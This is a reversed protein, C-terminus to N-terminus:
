KFEAQVWRYGVSDRKEIRGISPYPMHFGIVPIKQTTAMDFIRKRSKAAEEKDSDFSFHWDPRALSAVHHHACDSMIVLEEKESQVLFGLHGPTHGYAELTFIGQTVSDGPSLFTLKDAFPVVNKRFLDAFNKAMGRHKGKASWYDFEIESIAYKANPFTPKGGDMLGGIHDSHGHSIVVIDIQEPKFGAAALREKLLGAKPRPVFGNEGNGADFLILYKGTNVITPTFGLQVKTTSLKNSQMLKNVEEKGANKGFMPYPGDVLVEGDVITTIEFKGLKFRYHAPAVANAGLMPSKAYAPTILGRNLIPATALAATGTLIQRRSFKLKQESSNM